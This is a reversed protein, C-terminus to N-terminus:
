QSQKLAQPFQTKMNLSIFLRSLIIMLFRTYSSAFATDLVGIPMGVEKMEWKKM